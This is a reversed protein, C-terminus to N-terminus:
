CCQMEFRVRDFRHQQLYDDRITFYLLGADGWMWGPSSDSDLTLLHRITKRGHVDRQLSSAYGLLRHSLGNDETLGRYTDEEDAVPEPPLEGKWPSEREPLTLIETLSARCSRFRDEKALEEPFEQRTLRPTDPFHFVVWGGKDSNDFVEGSAAYFVSMLGTAPLERCVPSANLEGLDFQALFALPKRRYKPWKTGLPLDPRGGLKTVGIALKTEPTRVLEFTLAPRALRLLSDMYSAVKKKRAEEILTVGVLDRWPKPADAVKPLKKGARYATVFERLMPGRPDGREELWDAYVLKADHDALNEIVKALIDAEGPLVAAPSPFAPRSKPAPPM